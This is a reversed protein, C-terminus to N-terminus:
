TGLLQTWTHPAPAANSLAERIVLDAMAEVVWRFHEEGLSSLDLDPASNMFDIAYPVGDRVAFEVTNMDYGLGTCLTRADARIRAELEPPLPPMSRAAHTYREFHGQRPDWLAVRVETKGVVICRVYQEWAISEQVIMTLTGTQDYAHWLEERSTVRHVDKWGGGWHPKMFLPYGGLARELDDWDVLALNRLSGSSVDPGYAKSPLLATRPVAVGLKAALATNFFKDDAIRWFPNNIVRTGNLAALKLWPQYCTVEHSIRDVLVAYPPVDDIRPAQLTALECVVGADRRDVEAILAEPFTRERGVLLGVKRPGSV